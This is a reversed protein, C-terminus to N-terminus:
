HIKKFWNSLSVTADRLNVTLLTGITSNMAVIHSRRGCNAKYESIKDVYFKDTRSQFM